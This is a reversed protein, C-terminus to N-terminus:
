ILPKLKLTRTRSSAPNVKNYFGSGLNKEISHEIEMYSTPSNFSLYQQPLEFRVNGKYENCNVKIDTIYEYENLNLEYENLNLELSSILTIM